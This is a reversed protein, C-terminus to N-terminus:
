VDRRNAHHTIGHRSSAPRGWHLLDAPTGWRWTPCCLGHLRGMPQPETLDWTATAHWFFPLDPRDTDVILRAEIDNGTVQNTAISWVSGDHRVYPTSYVIVPTMPTPM